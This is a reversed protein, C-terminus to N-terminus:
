SATLTLLGTFIRNISVIASQSSPLLLLYGEESNLRRQLKRSRTSKPFTQEVVVPFISTLALLM